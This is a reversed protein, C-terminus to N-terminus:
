KKIKFKGSDVLKISNYDELDTFEFQWISYKDDSKEFFLTVVKKNTYSQWQRYPYYLQRIITNRSSSNKAEVLVVQEKGEYGADVETQVSRVTIMNSGVNFTFKPTYKRGRITLVLSDDQMFTRILSSAYAYDLHQMESNGVLSTDLNFNLKSEYLEQTKSIEPIDVYGEGKVIAYKGNKVPLLFLNRKTFVDPRSERTDQKCLIRVEKQGTEGFDHCSSKIQAATIYFPEISFDHHNINYDKFIKRWSENIAM